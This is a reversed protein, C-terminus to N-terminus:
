GPLIERQPMVSDDIEFRKWGVKQAALLWLYYPNLFCYRRWLRTPERTLRYLWELGMRQMWHPAQPLRGAHFAFAAGVALVPMRLDEKFEYAWVEQRPCGLGVFTIAAHSAHIEEVVESKEESTLTRFRSARTGAIRLKPFKETLRQQLEKIVDDTSGFLFIPLGGDAAAACTKLM